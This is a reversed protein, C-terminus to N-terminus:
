RGSKKSEIILSNGSLLLMIRGGANEETIVKRGRGQCGVRVELVKVVAEALAVGERRCFSCGGHNWPLLSETTTM